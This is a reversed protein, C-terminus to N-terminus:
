EEKGKRINEPTFRGAPIVEIARISLGAAPPNMAVFAVGIGRCIGAVESRGVEVTRPAFAEENVWSPLGPGHHDLTDLFMQFETLTDLHRKAGEESDFACLAAVGRTNVTACVYFDRDAGKLVWLSKAGGDLPARRKSRGERSGMYYGGRGRM